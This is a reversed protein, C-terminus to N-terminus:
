LPVGTACDVWAYGTGSTSDKLTAASQLGLHEADPLNEKRIEHLLIEGTEGGCVAPFAVGTMVGCGSKMVDIGANILTQAGQEPTLGRSGCQVSQRSQFVVTNGPAALTKGPAVDGNEDGGGCAALQVVLVASFARLLSFHNTTSGM